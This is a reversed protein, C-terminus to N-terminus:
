NKYMLSRCASIFDCNNLKMFLAINDGGFSEGFDYFSNNSLYVALSGVKEDPRWPAKYFHKDPSKMTPESGIFESIPIQKIRHIDEETIKDDDYDLPTKWLEIQRLVNKAWKYNKQDLALILRQNLYRLASDKVWEPNEQTFEVEFEDVEKKVDEKWQAYISKARPEGVSVFKGEMIEKDNEVEWDFEENSLKMRTIYIDRKLGPTALIRRDEVEYEMIAEANRRTAETGAKDSDFALLIDM